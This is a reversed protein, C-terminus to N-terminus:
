PALAYLCEGMIPSYPGIAPLTIQMALQFPPRHRRSGPRATREAIEYHINRATFMPRDCNGLRSKDLRREIRRKRKDLQRRINANVRFGKGM